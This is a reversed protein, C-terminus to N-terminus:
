DCVIGVLAVVVVVVVVVFVVVVFVVVVVVICVGCGDRRKELAARGCLSFDSRTGPGGGEHIM